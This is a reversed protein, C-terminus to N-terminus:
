ALLWGGLYLGMGFVTHTMLSKLRAGAPNATKSAAFGLGLAPQMTAYPVIVTAIGFLLAPLLTPQDIWGTFLLVLMLAFSAGISYHALWGVTCERPRPAASAIGKHVFVGSPMHLVWRGLLCLDLSRIGFLRRLLVAWLDITATAIIGILVAKALM